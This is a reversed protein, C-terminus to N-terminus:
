NNTEQIGKTVQKVLTKQLIKYQKETLSLQIMTNSHQIDYHGGRIEAFGTTTYDHTITLTYPM